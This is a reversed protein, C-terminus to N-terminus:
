FELHLLTENFTIEPFDTLKFVTLKHRGDDDDNLRMQYDLWLVELKDEDMQEM